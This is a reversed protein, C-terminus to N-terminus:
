PQKILTQHNNLIEKKVKHKALQEIQHIRPTSVGILDAIEALTLPSASHAKELLSVLRRHEAADEESLLDYISISKPM